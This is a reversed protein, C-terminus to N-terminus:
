IERIIMSDHAQVQEQVQMHNPLKDEQLIIIASSEESSSDKRDRRSQPPPPPPPPLVAGGSNRRSPDTRSSSVSATMTSFSNTRVHRNSSPGSPPANLIDDTSMVWDASDTRNLVRKPRQASLGALSIRRGSSKSSATQISIREFPEDKSDGISSSCLLDNMATVKRGGLNANSTTSTSNSGGGGGGGGNWDSSVPTAKREQSKIKQVKKRKQEINKDDFVNRMHGTYYSPNALRDYVPVNVHSPVSVQTLTHMKPSSVSIAPPPGRNNPSVQPWEGYRIEDSILNFEDLIITTSEPDWGSDEEDEGDEADEILSKYNISYPSSNAQDTNAEKSKMSMKRKQSARDKVTDIINKGEKGMAMLSAKLDDVMDKFLSRDEELFKIQFDREEQERCLRHNAFELESCRSALEDSNLASRALQSRLLHCEEVVLSLQVSEVGTSMSNHHTSANSATVTDRESDSPSVDSPTSPPSARQPDDSRLMSITSDNINKFIGELKQEYDTALKTLNIEYMRRTSSHTTHMEEIRQKLLKERADADLEEIASVQLRKYSSVLMDFLLRVLDQQRPTQAGHTNSLASHLLVDLTKEYFVARAEGNNQIKQGVDKIQKEIDEIRSDLQQIKEAVDADLYPQQQQQQEPDRELVAKKNLLEMQTQCLKKLIDVAAEEQICCAYMCKDSMLSIVFIKRNFFLAQAISLLRKELWKKTHLDDSSLIRNISGNINRTMRAVEKMAKIASMKSASKSSGSQNATTNSNNNNIPNNSTQTNSQSSQKKSANVSSSLALRSLYADRALYLFSQTIVPHCIHTLVAVM